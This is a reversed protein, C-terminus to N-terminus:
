CDLSNLRDDSDVVVGCGGFVGRLLNDGARSSITVSAAITSPVPPGPIIELSM